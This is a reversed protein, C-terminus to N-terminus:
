GLVLARREALQVLRSAEHQRVRPVDAARPRQRVEAELRDGRGAGTIRPRDALGIVADRDVIDAIMQGRQAVRDIQGDVGIELTTEGCLGSFTATLTARATLVPM